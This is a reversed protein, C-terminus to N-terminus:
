YRIWMIILMNHIIFVGPAHGPSFVPPFIITPKRAAAAGRGASGEPISGSVRRKVPMQEVLQALSGYRRTEGADIRIFPPELRRSFAKPKM